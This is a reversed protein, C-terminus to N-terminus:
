YAVAFKGGPGIGQPVTVIMYQQTQPNQVQLQEGAYVGAPVQVHFVQQQQSPAPGGLAQSFPSPNPPVSAAVHPARPPATTTSQRHTNNHYGSTHGVSVSNSAFFPAPDTSPATSPPPIPTLYAAASGYQTDNYSSDHRQIPPLPMIGHAHYFYDVVQQPIEDLTERTLASKDHAHSSFQVFQCIDRIQSYQNAFDDLFQMKSFDANGVGVIVVSLPATSARELAQKTLEINSVAGDTLILLIHYEQRGTRQGESLASRARAAAMDIVEAFVTPGSMTLGSQFVRRYEQVVSSLGALQATPGVQFCHNIQGQFKAGFGYVPFHQNSDYKAIISGVSTLCKEYDNLQDNNQHIYHLTGPIRPDGNSGTFDIKQTSLLLPKLDCHVGHL